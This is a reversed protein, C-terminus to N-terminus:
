PSYPPGALARRRVRVPAAPPLNAPDTSVFKPKVDESGEVCAMHLGDGNHSVM